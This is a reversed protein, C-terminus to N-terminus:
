PRSEITMVMTAESMRAAPLTRFARSLDDLSYADAPVAGGPDQDLVFCRVYEVGPPGEVRFAYSRDGGPIHVSASGAVRAERQFTNPFIKTIAGGARESSKHFCYLYGDRATQVVLVASDGVGYVPRRGRDSSLQVGFPGPSERRDLVAETPAIPLLSKPLSDRRIRVGHSAARGDGKLSVRVEVDAGFDWLTGSLLFAGPRAQVMVKETGGSELQGVNQLAPALIAAPMAQLGSIREVLRGTLEKGLYAGLPTQVDSQQYYVGLTEITKMDPMQQALADAAAALAQELPMGKAASTDIPLFRPQSSSVQRGSRLDFAKYSIDVGGRAPVLAGMLLIDARSSELLAIQDATQGFEETEAMLRPLEGRAVILNGSGAKEIARALADNFSQAMVVPVPVDAAVYPQLAIRKGSEVSALVERAIDAFVDAKAPPLAPRDDARGFYEDGYEPRPAAVRDVHSAYSSQLRPESFPLPDYVCSSVLAGTLTMLAARSIPGRLTTM